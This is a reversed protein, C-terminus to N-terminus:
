KSFRKPSNLERKTFNSFPFSLINVIRFHINIGSGPNYFELKKLLTVLGTVPLVETKEAHGRTNEEDNQVTVTRSIGVSSNESKTDNTILFLLRFHLLTLLPRHPRAM